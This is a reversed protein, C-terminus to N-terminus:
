NSVSAGDTDHPWRSLFCVSKDQIKCRICIFKTKRQKLLYLYSTHTNIHLGMHGIVM